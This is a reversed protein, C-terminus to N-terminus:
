CNTTLSLGGNPIGPKLVPENLDSFVRKPVYAENV